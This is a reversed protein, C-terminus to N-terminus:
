IHLRFRRIAEAFVNLFCDSASNPKLLLVFVNTQQRAMTSGDDVVVIEHLVEPPTTDYVSKVTKFEAQLNQYSEM